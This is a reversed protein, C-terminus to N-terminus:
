FDPLQETPYCDTPEDFNGVIGSFPVPGEVAGAPAPGTLSLVTGQLTPTLWFDDAAGLAAVLFAGDARRDSVEVEYDFANELGVPVPCIGGAMSAGGAVLDLYMYALLSDEDGVAGPPAITPPEAFEFTVNLTGDTVHAGAFVVDYQVLDSVGVADGVPDTYGTFAYSATLEAGTGAPELEVEHRATSAAFKESVDEGPFRPAAALFEGFTVVYAGAPLEVVREGNGVEIQDVVLGGPTAIEVTTTADAPLGDVTLTLPQPAGGGCATLVLAFLLLVPLISRKM